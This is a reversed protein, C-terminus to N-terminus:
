KSSFIGVQGLIRAQFIGHLPAQHDITLLTEFLQVRVHGLACERVMSNPHSDRLSIRNWMFNRRKTSQQILHTLKRGM